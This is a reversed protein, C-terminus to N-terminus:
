DGDNFYSKVRRSSLDVLRGSDSIRYELDNGHTMRGNIRNKLVNMHMDHQQMSREVQGMNPDNGPRFLGIVVDAETYGAGKASEETPPQYSKEQRNTQHLVYVPMRERKAWAKLNSATAETKQWGEGSGKAGGIEELYDIIVADPRQGFAVAYNEIYVSMDGLTLGSSDVVVHRKLEDALWDLNDPLDNSRMMKRFQNSPVDYFHCYLREIVQHAPMELSFFLLGHDLNNAMINTALLSKGVHSRAMALVIEGWAPGEIYTDLSGLGTKVRAKPNAALNRLESIQDGLLPFGLNSLPHRMESRQCTGDMVPPM